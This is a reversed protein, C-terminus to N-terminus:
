WMIIIPWQVEPDKLPGFVVLANVSRELLMRWFDQRTDPLPHQTSIFEVRNYYGDIFSANIYGSEDSEDNGEAEELIVRNLDVTFSCSLPLSCSLSLAHSLSCSLPLSLSLAHFLTLSLSLANSIHSLFLFLFFWQQLKILSLVIVGLAVVLCM